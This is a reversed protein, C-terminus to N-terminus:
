LGRNHNQKTEIVKTNHTHTLSHTFHKHSVALPKHSGIRVCMTNILNNNGNQMKITFKALNISTM